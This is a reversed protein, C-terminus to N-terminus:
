DAKMAMNAGLHLILFVLIYDPNGNMLGVLSVFYVRLLNYFVMKASKVYLKKGCAVINSLQVNICGNHDIECFIELTNGLVALYKKSIGLYQWTNGLIGLGLRFRSSFKSQKASILTM